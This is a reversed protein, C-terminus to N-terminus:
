KKAFVADELRTMRRDHDDQKTTIALIQKVQPKIEAMDTKLDKIDDHHSALSIALQQYFRWASGGITVMIGLTAVISGLSISPDFQIQGIM